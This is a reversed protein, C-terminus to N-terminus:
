SAEHLAGHQLRLADATNKLRTTLDDLTGDNRLLVDSEAFAVGRETRHDPAAAAGPKIIHVVIGGNDRIWQAEAETRVDEVLDGSFLWEQRRNRQRRIELMDILTRPNEAILLDGMRQMFQRKTLGVPHIVANKPMDLFDDLPIGLAAACAGTIPRAIIYRRLSLLECLQLAVTTKGVEALGHLGILLPKITKAQM